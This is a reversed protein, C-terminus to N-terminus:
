ADGDTMPLCRLGLSQLWESDASAFVTALGQSQRLKLLIHLVERHRASDGATPEDLLLLEPGHMQARSLAILYLSEADLDRIRKNAISGEISSYGMAELVHLAEVPSAHRYLGAHCKLTEMVTLFPSMGLPHLVSGTREFFDRSWDNLEIGQFEVRGSYQRLAGALIRLLASRAPGKGGTIALTEGKEMAFSLGSFLSRRPHPLAYALDRVTLM